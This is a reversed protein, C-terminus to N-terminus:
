NLDSSIFDAATQMINKEMNKRHEELKLDEVTEGTFM